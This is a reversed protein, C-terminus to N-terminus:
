ATAGASRYRRELEALIEAKVPPWQTHYISEPDVKRDCHFVHFPWSEPFAIRRGGTTGVHSVLDEWNYSLDPRDIFVDLDFGGFREAIPVFRAVDYAVFHTSLRNVSRVGAEIPPGEDLLKWSWQHYDNVKSLVPVDPHLEFLERCAALIDFSPETRYMVVDDEVVVLYRVGPVFMRRHGNNSPDGSAVYRKRSRIQLEDIGWGTALGPLKDAVHEPTGDALVVVEFSESTSNTLADLCRIVTRSFLALDAHFLFAIRWTPQANRRGDDGRVETDVM